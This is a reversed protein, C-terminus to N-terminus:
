ASPREGPALGLYADAVAPDARVDDPSGIAIVEGFDLVVVEDCVGMVLDMHHEVLVVATAETLARIRAALEHTEATSLGSAPEDLLLLEPESVLARALAVRKRSGYPLAGPLHDRVDALDLERLLRLARSRLEREDRAAGATGLLAAISGTRAFGGAGAMVNELVTLGGFLGLGQLTRAIGLRALQDPRHNGLARDKWRLEGTEPRVLGCIVNFLTTKGAGNPGIVGLVSRASISLSVERLAVLGGFRVTVRRVDLVKEPFPITM